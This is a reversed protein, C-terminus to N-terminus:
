ALFYAWFFTNCLFTKLTQGAGPYLHALDTEKYSSQSLTVIDSVLIKHWKMRTKNDGVKIFYSVFLKPM